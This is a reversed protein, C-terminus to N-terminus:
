YRQRTRCAMLFVRTSLRGFFPQPCLGFALSPSQHRSTKRINQEACVNLHISAAISAAKVATYDKGAAGTLRSVSLAYACAPQELGSSVLVALGEPQGPQDDSLSQIAEQVLRIALM